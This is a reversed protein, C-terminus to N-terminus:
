AGREGERGEGRGGKRGASRRRKEVQLKRIIEKECSECSIALRAVVHGIVVCIIPIIAHTIFEHKGTAGSYNLHM